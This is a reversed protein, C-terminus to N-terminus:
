LMWPQSSHLSVCSLSIRSNARGCSSATHLCSKRIRPFHRAQEPHDLPTMARAVLGQSSGVMTSCPKRCAEPVGQLVRPHWHPQQIRISRLARSGPTHVLPQM